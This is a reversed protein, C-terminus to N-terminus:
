DGGRKASKRHWVKRWADFESPRVQYRAFNGEQLGLLETEAAKIFRARDAQDVHREAWEAIRRAAAKQDFASRIVEAVVQKLATRHRFRFPDPEGLSQRLAAYRASSREYAWLFM